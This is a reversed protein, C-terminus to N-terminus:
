ILFVVDSRRGFSTLVGGRREEGRREEGRREEGRREEGRREEGRRKEAKLILIIGWCSIAVRFGSCGCFRHRCYRFCLVCALRLMKSFLWEVVSIALIRCNSAILICKAFLCSKKLVLAGLSNAIFKRRNPVVKDLRQVLAYFLINFMKFRNKLGFKINLALFADILM